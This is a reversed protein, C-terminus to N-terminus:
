NFSLSSPEPFLSWPNVSYFVRQNLLNVGRNLQIFFEITWTSYKQFWSELLYVIIFLKYSHLKNMQTFGAEPEPWSRTAKLTSIKRCVKTQNRIYFINDNWPTQFHENRIIVYIKRCYFHVLLQRLSFGNSFWCQYRTWSESKFKLPVM